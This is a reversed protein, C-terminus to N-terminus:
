DVQKVLFFEFLLLGFELRVSDIVLVDLLFELSRNNFISALLIERIQIEHLSFPVLHQLFDEPGFFLRVVSVM